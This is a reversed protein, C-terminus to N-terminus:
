QRRNFNMRGIPKRYSTTSDVDKFIQSSLIGFLIWIVSMIWGPSTMGNFVFGVKYLLGSIFLCWIRPWQCALQCTNSYRRHTPRFLITQRVHFIHTRFRNSDSRDLHPLPFKCPVSICIFCRRPGYIRIYSMYLPGKYRGTFPNPQSSLPLYFKLFRYIIVEM